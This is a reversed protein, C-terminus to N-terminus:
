GSLPRRLVAALEFRGFINTGPPIRFLHPAGDVIRERIEIQRRQRRAPAVPLRGWM